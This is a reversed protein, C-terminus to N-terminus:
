VLISFYIGILSPIRNNVDFERYTIPNGSRDLKPLDGLVNDWARGANTGPTQGSYNGKWGNGEYGNYSNQAAPPLDNFSGTTFNEGEGAYGEPKGNDLPNGAQAENGVAAEDVATAIDAATAGRGKSLANKLAGLVKSGGFVGANMLTGALTGILTDLWLEDAPKQRILDNAATVTAGSAAGAFMRALAQEATTGTLLKAIASVSQTGAM